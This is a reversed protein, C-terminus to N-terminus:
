YIALLWKLLRPQIRKIAVKTSTAHSQQQQQQQQQNATTTLVPHGDDGRCPARRCRGGM